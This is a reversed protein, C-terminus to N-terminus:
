VNEIIERIISASGKGLPLLFPLDSPRHDKVCHYAQHKSSKWAFVFIDATKALTALRETCVHDNNLITESNPAIEKLMRAARIGAQETLTYIGIIKSSLKEELKDDDHSQHDNTQLQLGEPLAIGYDRCLLAISQFHTATMRHSHNQSLALVDTVYRLRAEGDTSRETALIEAVDLAWELTSFSGHLNLMHLLQDILDKYEETSTGMTLISNLLLTSLELDNRSLSESTALLFLLNKHIAKLETKPEDVDIVFARFLTPFSGRFVMEPESEANGVLNAFEELAGPIESLDSVSWTESYKEVVRESDRISAGSTIWHAWELWGSKYQRETENSSIESADSQPIQLAQEKLDDIAKLTAVGLNNVEKSNMTEFCMLVSRTSAEDRNDRACTVMRRLSKETVPLTLYLFLARDYENNEFAEDAEQWQDTEAVNDSQFESQETEISALRDFIADVLLNKHKNRLLSLIHRSYTLDTRSRLLEYVLFLMLVAPYEIGRRSSFLLGFRTINSEELAILCQDLDGNDEYPEIYERYYAEAIDRVIRPPLSSDVLDRLMSANVTIQPWLGLGALIRVELFMLNESTLRGARKMEELLHRAETENGALVARDFLGRVVGFQRTAPHSRPPRRSVVAQYLSFARRVDDAESRNKCEVKFLPNVFVKALSAEVPNLLDLTHPRGNFDSYSQGIFARLEDVVALAGQLSRSGVFWQVSGDSLLCPLCIPADLQGSDLVTLWANVDNRWDSAASNALLEDWRIMNPSDFFRALWERDTPTVEVM